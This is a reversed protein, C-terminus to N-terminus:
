LVFPLTFHVSIGRDANQEAWMKGGHAEVLARSIALGMGLGTAKTTYFSEFMQKLAGTDSVGSGSDCVTVQARTPDNPSRCTTVMITGSNNGSEQLSELGNTLLNVLVKQVQMMNALVPPLGDALNLETKFNNLHGSAKVFALAYKVSDNVNVPETITEGKHLLDLLQKIVEGARLAQQSCKAMVTGLKQPNPNGSKLMEQVVYAYYSIATLPQNLEHAIAAATQTAVYLRFSREMADRRENLERTELYDTIDLNLGLM